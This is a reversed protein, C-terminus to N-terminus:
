GERDELAGGGRHALRILRQQCTAIGDDEEVTGPVLRPFAGDVLASTRRCLAFVMARRASSAKSYSPGALASRNAISACFWPGGSKSSVSCTM